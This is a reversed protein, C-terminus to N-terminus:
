HAMTHTALQSTPSYYTGGDTLVLSFELIHETGVEIVHISVLCLKQLFAQKTKNKDNMM